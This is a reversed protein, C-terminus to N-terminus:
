FQPPQPIVQAATSLPVGAQMLLLQVMAAQLLPKASQSPFAPLPQSVLKDFLVAL